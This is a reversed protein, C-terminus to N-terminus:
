AFRFISYCSRWMFWPSSMHQPLILLEQGVLPLRRTQKTVLLSILWSHLCPQVTIVVWIWIISRSHLLKKDSIKHQHLQYSRIRICIFMPWLWGTNTKERVAAHKRCFYRIGIDYYIQPFNLKIPLYKMRTFSWLITKCCYLFLEKLMLIIRM